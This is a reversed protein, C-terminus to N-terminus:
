RMCLPARNPLRKLPLACCGVNWSVSGPEIAAHLLKTAVDGAGVGVDVGVNVGVDVGDDVGDDVGLEIGAAVPHEGPIGTVMM